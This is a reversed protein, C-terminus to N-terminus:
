RLRRLFPDQPAYPAAKVRADVVFVGDPRAIVPNLDLDTIEPLDDALRSVRMLLGRLAELDAPPSGRYGLLLPAAKISRILTDADTDTLPTLRAAHDALVETAVGGLGFVVLPGFLHDDAVGVIVETGDGIMPQVLVAHLKDGFRETLRRYAARVDAETRLDLEVGGADTKHVLGPVDAKLVVPARGGAAFAGIADDESGAPILEALPIGYCRLLGATTDPPLWGGHGDSGLFERVLAHADETRIDGFEPVVGSPAARWAGYRAARAVAAAAAAPSAYAPIRIGGAKGDGKAPGPLLRVTEAQDLLVAALPVRIDAEQIAPVLDGTAGTPLVLAIMASVEEDAAALELCERFQGASVAATTDIPGDATGGQPILARLRRRIQEHPRHVTLGLDACADAALVGAGGINSVIAVTGGSPVPQTALLAATEILDSFDPVVIVGAQRFLAERTVLPTAVAATHSAAARQGAESRGAEVTLVPMRAAVRRATWAFKRPNGFSEIYLVALGTVGDQEWWMLMDNSSVDLKDGVSAFSSIGIGLRSLQDATAFGLGGSQMVLGAVGAQPHAAAFTADLGIGPVAVGFCNPGILRMGHRRCTALLGARTAADLGSTIVVVARVGRRGCQEAADLVAAAPVAIVAMDVYEPLDGPAALCPEGGIQRAHPNVVYLKGPYGASRINDWIARGVTGPRRSAGIVAVSEPAFVHRLSAVDAHREREAVASLYGNLGTGAGDRPLPINLDVVGDETHRHVPLGADAFVKLMAANEALTMGTFCTIQHSRAYSVLHELLLTAIGRHHLHDAVAFAVEAKHDPLGRLTEYSACGVVEGGALALLAVRGPGPERCIRQAETEAATRSLGFFRFYANDPSMAEHMAKVADFDGPVARRIEVTSGDVLLAYVPCAQQVTSM